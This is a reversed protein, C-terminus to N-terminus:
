RERPSCRQHRPPGVVVQPQAASTLPEIADPYSFVGAQLCIMLAAPQLTISAGQERRGRRWAIWM